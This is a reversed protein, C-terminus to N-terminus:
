SSIGYLSASGSAINAGNVFIQLATKATTDATLVGTGSTSPYNTGDFWATNFIFSTNSGNACLFNTFFMIGSAGSGTSAPSFGGTITGYAVNAGRGSGTITNSNGPATFTSFYYGSSIYTPTSGEGFYFRVDNSTAPLLNEFILLYKDYGSLGTWTLNASSSATKTSILTMAGSPFASGGITPTNAFNIVQSSNITMATTGATQLQLTGSNDATTILGGAGSTSANIISAM